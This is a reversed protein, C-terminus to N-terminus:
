PKGVVFTGQKIFHIALVILVGQAKTSLSKNKATLHMQNDFLYM